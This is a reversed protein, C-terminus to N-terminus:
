CACPGPSNVVATISAMPIIIALQARPMCARKNASSIRLSERMLDKFGTKIYALGLPATRPAFAMASSFLIGIGLGKLVTQAINQSQLDIDSITTVSAAM